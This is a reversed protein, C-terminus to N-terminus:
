SAALREEGPRRPWHADSYMTRRTCLTCNSGGTRCCQALTPEPMPKLWGGTAHLTRTWPLHGPSVPRWTYAASHCVSQMVICALFHPLWFCCPEAWVICNAQSVYAKDALRDSWQGDYSNNHVKCTAVVTRWYVYCAGAQDKHTMHTLSCTRHAHRAAHTRRSLDAQQPMTSPNYLIYARPDGHVVRM